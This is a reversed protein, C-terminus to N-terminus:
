AAVPVPRGAQLIANTAKFVARIAADPPRMDRLWGQIYGRSRGARDDGLEGLEHMALYATAEAQFEGLGRHQEQNETSTHGLVVHALEHFMTGLPDSAVPNIAVKRGTSYGQVNGDTLAFTIREIDLVGLAADLDWGAPEVMPLEDGETESLTFLCRVAKFRMYTQEDEGADAKRKVVIPRVIEKAKSGKQVQRGLDTWRKYTAVPENVGQMLLLMQNMFSYNYFRNYTNGVNGPATLAVEILAPWDVEQAKVDSM